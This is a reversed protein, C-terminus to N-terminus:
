KKQKIVTIIIPEEGSINYILELSTDTFKFEAYNGGEDATKYYNDSVKLLNENLMGGEYNEGRLMIRIGESGVTVIMKRIKEESNNPDGVYTGYWKPSIVGAEKPYASLNMVLFSPVLLAFLFKLIRNKM